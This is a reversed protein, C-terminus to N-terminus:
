VTRCELRDEAGREPLWGWIVAAREPIGFSLAVCVSHLEVDLGELGGDNFAGTLHRLLAQGADRDKKCPPIVTASIPITSM